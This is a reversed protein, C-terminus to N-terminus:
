HSGSPVPGVGVYLRSENSGSLIKVEISNQNKVTVPISLYRSSQNVKDSGAILQGNLRIEAAGVPPEAKGNGNAVTVVYPVEPHSALFTDAGGVGIGSFFYEFIGTQTYAGNILKYFGTVAPGTQDPKEAESGNVIELVGDGDLDVFLPDFLDTCPLGGVPTQAGLSKLGTGDWKFIWPQPRGNKDTNGALIAAKGSNDIKITSVEPPFMPGGGFPCLKPEDVVLASDGQKKLVRLAGGGAWVYLAVLFEKSGTGNLDAAVFAFAKTSHGGYKAVYAADSNLLQQPWFQEVIARNQAEQAAAPQAPTSQGLAAGLSVLLLAPAITLSPLMGFRRVNVSRM